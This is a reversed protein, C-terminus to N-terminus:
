EVMYLWKQGHKNQTDEHAEYTIKANYNMRQKLIRGIKMVAAEDKYDSTWVAIKDVGRRINIVAGCIQDSEEGFADGILCLLAELWMEDLAKSFSKQFTFLWRGGKTNRTDEWMPKIGLKFVCYDSGIKLNSALEIHNYLAWFDEVTKFTTVELLNLIWEKKEGRWYWLQWENQLPHKVFDIISNDEEPQDVPASM